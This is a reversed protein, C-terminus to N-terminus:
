DGRCNDNVKGPHGPRGPTFVITGPGDSYAQCHLIFAHIISGGGGREENAFNNAPPGPPQNRANDAVAPYAPILLSALVLPVLLLRRM